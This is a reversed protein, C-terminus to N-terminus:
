SDTGVSRVSDEVPGNDLCHFSAIPKVSAYFSIEQPFLALVASSSSTPM